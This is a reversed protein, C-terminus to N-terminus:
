KKKNDYVSFVQVILALLMIIFLGISNGYLFITFAQIAVIVWNIVLLILELNTKMNMGGDLEYISQLDM